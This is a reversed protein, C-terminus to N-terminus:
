VMDTRVSKEEFTIRIESLQKFWIRVGYEWVRYLERHNQTLGDPKVKQMLKGARHKFQDHIECFGDLAKDVAERDFDKGAAALKATEMLVRELKDHKVQVSALESVLARMENLMDSPLDTKQVLLCFPVLYVLMVGLFLVTNRRM